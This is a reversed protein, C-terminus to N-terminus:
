IQVIKARGRVDRIKIKILFLNMVNSKTRGLFRHKQGHMSIDRNAYEIHENVMQLDHM